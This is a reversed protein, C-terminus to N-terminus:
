NNDKRKSSVFENYEKEYFWNLDDDKVEPNEEKLDKINFNLNNLKEKFTNKLSESDLRSLIDKVRNTFFDNQLESSPADNNKVYSITAKRKIEDEVLTKVLEIVSSTLDDRWVGLLKKLNSNNNYFDYGSFKEEMLNSFKNLLEKQDNIKEALLEYSNDKDVKLGELDETQKVVLFELEELLSNCKMMSEYNRIIEQGHLDITKDRKTLEAYVSSLAENKIKSINNEVESKTSDLIIRSSADIVKEEINKTISDIDRAIQSLKEDVVYYIKDRIIMSLQSSEQILNAIESESLKFNDIHNGLENISSKINKIESGYLDNYKHEIIELQDRIDYKKDMLDMQSAIDYVKNEISAISNNINRHEQKFESLELDVKNSIHDLRFKFEDGLYNNNECIMNTIKSELSKQFIKSSLVNDLFNDINTLDSVKIELENIKSSNSAIKTDIVAFKETNSADLAKVEKRVDEIENKNSNTEIVLDDQKNSLNEVKDKVNEIEINLKLLSNKNESTQKKIENILENLDEDYGFRANSIEYVLGELKTLLKNSEVWASCIKEIEQEIKAFNERSSTIEQIFSTNNNSLINTLDKQQSGITDLNVQYDNIFSNFSEKTYALESTLSEIKSNADELKLNLLKEFSEMLEKQQSSVSSEDDVFILPQENQDIYNSSFNSSENETIVENTKDNIKSIVESLNNIMSGMHDEFNNFVSQLENKFSSFQNNTSDSENSKQNNYYSTDNSFSDFLSNEKISEQEFSFNSNNSVLLNEIRKILEKSEKSDRQLMEIRQSNDFSQKDLKHLHSVIQNDILDTNQNVSFSSDNKSSVLNRALFEAEERILINTEVDDQRPEISELYELKKNSYNKM